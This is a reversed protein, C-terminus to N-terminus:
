TQPDTETKYVSENTNNKLNCMYTFEYSIQRERDPKSLKSHYDRPGAVNICITNNWEKEHSLLLGNYIHVM